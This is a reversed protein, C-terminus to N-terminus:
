PNELIYYHTNIFAINAVMFILDILYEDILQDKFVYIFATSKPYKSLTSDIIYQEYFWFILYVICGCFETSTYRIDNQIFIINKQDIEVFVQGLKNEISCYFNFVIDNKIHKFSINKKVIPGLMSVINLKDTSKLPSINTHKSMKKVFIYDSTQIISM